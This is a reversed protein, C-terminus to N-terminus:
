SIVKKQSHLIQYIRFHGLVATMFIDLFPFESAVGFLSLKKRIKCLVVVSVSVFGKHTYIDWVVKLFVSIDQMEKRRSVSFKMVYIPLFHM